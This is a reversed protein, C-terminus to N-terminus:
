INSNTIHLKLWNALQLSNAVIKTKALYCVLTIANMNALYNNYYRITPFTLPPFSQHIQHILRQNALTKDELTKYKALLISFIIARSEPARTTLRSM